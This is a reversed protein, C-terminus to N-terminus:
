RACPLALVLPPLPLAPQGSAQDREALDVHLQSQPSVTTERSSRGAPPAHQQQPEYIRSPLLGDYTAPVSARGRVVFSSLTGEHLRAACRDRLLETVRAFEPTLPVVLENLSTVAAQIDVTGPINLASSASVSSAPDQLFVGASIRINGGPGGFANATIQSNELVVFEPDITINGGAGQGSSVATTIQSERLRVITQASVEINGGDAETAETTVSSGGSLLLTDTGLIRINGANGTGTSQASITADDAIQVAQAQLVIDGGTGSGATATFLGSGQGSLTVTDTATVTVTGGQGRGFTASSIRAGASLEIARAQVVVAGAGGTGAEGGEASAFIGTPVTGDTSTGRLALTEAATVTVTGGQGPGLTASSIQAGDTLEIARAQVVVAGATGARAARGAADASITTPFRGDPSTGQLALTEAATVTVTGGQGPGFTTGSIQAGASLEITRAQVVV